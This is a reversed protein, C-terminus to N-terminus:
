GPRRRWCNRRSLPGRIGLMTRRLLLDDIRRVRENRILYLMERRSFDPAAAIPADPGEGIFRAVDVARSGYRKALLAFRERPMGTAAAERRVWEARQAPDVPFGRRRRHCAREHRVDRELGLEALAADAAEEGFARFTTWKGGILTLVPFPLPGAPEM